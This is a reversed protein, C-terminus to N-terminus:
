PRGFSIGLFSAGARPRNDYGPFIVMDASCFVFPFISAIGDRIPQRCTSFNASMINFIKFYNSIIKPAWVVVVYVYYIFSIVMLVFLVFLNGILKAPRVPLRRPM